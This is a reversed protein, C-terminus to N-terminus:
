NDNKVEQVDALHIAYVPADIALDTNKGDVVEIKVIEAKLYQKTYGLRLICDHPCKSCDVVAAMFHPNFPTLFLGDVRGTIEKNLRKTWYPKVERYEITKEGLRIKEFWQKKLNFTLM